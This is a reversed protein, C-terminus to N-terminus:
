RGSYRQQCNRVSVNYNFNANRGKGPLSIIVSEAKAEQAADVDSHWMFVTSNTNPIAVNKAVAGQPQTGVSKLHTVPDFNRWTTYADRRSHKQRHKVSRM